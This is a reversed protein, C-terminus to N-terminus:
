VTPYFGVLRAVRKMCLKDAAQEGVRGAPHDGGFFFGECFGANQGFSRGCVLKRVSFHQTKIAAERKVLGQGYFLLLYSFLRELHLGNPFLQMFLQTMFLILFSLSIKREVQIALNLRPIGYEQIVVM